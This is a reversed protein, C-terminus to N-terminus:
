QSDLSVKSIISTKKMGRKILQIRATVTELIRSPSQQSEPSFSLFFVKSAVQHAKKHKQFRGVLGGGVIEQILSENRTLISTNKGGQSVMRIEPDTVSM